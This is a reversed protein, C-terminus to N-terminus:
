SRNSQSDTQYLQTSDTTVNERRNNQTLIEYIIFYEYVM